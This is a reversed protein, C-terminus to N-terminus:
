RGQGARHRLFGYGAARRFPFPFFWKARWGCYRPYGLERRGHRQSPRLRSAYSTFQASSLVRITHFERSFFQDKVPQVANKRRKEASNGQNQDPSAHKQNQRKLQVPLFFFDGDFVTMELKSMTQRFGRLRSILCITFREYDIKGVTDETQIKQRGRRIYLKEWGYRVASARRMRCFSKGSRM